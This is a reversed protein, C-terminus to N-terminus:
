KAAATTGGVVATARDIEKAFGEIISAVVPIQETAEQWQRQELAERVAPLTKVGYGTYFGPAYIQHVYWSRRPLGEKRTLARESKMLIEDLRRQADPAPMKGGATAAAYAKAYAASSKKLTAVANQLPAFNLYPVADLRKPAVWTQTPDDVATFVKDDLRRNREEAEKRLNDALKMVEDAYRSIAAASREFEFPLVEANALRLVARGNTKALTVGYEFKPDGFRVYHDFSDYISHYQGYEEEGGYDMNLAAVGLHQLFPTYDSGSGLPFLPFAKRSRIEEVAEPPGFLTAAAMAREGVSIGKEPDTVDPAIQNVFTELTHSGGASFFGRSNSDSNIYVAAKDRLEAAHTEAWETSGLLGPEEGDWAAYVITRKPKWGTKALEGVARAEELLGVMGSIPDTAGNVWGDHHNGRVIWEDPREAGPLVAIVDRAPVLKWDFELKLHVRAPGPGLHYPIPLSGRWEEPAMAGGMAKLLPLADGYSIPLVPIKTLTPASKVDLRKADETAGVGPTLPDGSYVPMDAVSGRQASRDSRWGGKPYVDGQFYGDEHPDSFIICGVAGHEAAVKPKIGRWSGYYRAIVIKGKVDIGRRELEEYDKPVGFNVYVLEGTVDGDISYANYVPLQEATQGSTSDEPIAPEALTAQYRTPAELELLRVKPTPFLVKFEEIRTQFGWSRFLGAMFEANDKGYPSGVHHPRASLRKMWERLNSANLYSDFRAELARQEATGADSFGLMPAGGPAPPEAAASVALGLALIPM